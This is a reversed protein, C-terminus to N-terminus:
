LEPIRIRATVVAGADPQPGSLSIEGGIAVLAERAIFLGLGTGGHNRGSRGRYFKEFIRAPEFPDNEATANTVTLLAYRRGADAGAVLSVRVPKDPLGYRLANSMVNRAALDFLGRDSTITFPELEMQWAQAPGLQAAIDRLVSAPSFETGVVNWHGGEAEQAFLCRDIVARLASVSRETRASVLDDQHLAGRTAAFVKGALRDIERTLALQTARYDAAVALDAAIEAMAMDRELQGQQAVRHQLWVLTLILTSTVIAITDVSHLYLFEQRVLGLRLALDLMVVAIYLSYVVRVQWRRIPGTDRITWLYAVLLPAFTTNCAMAVMNAAQGHGALRWVPAAISALFLGLGLRQLLKPPDFQRMFCTHFAISTVALLARFFGQIAESFGADTLGFAIRGYGSFWFFLVLFSTQMALFTFDLLNGFPDLRVLVLAIALFQLALVASTWAASRLDERISLDQTVVSIQIAGPSATSIRVYYPTQGPLPDIAFGYWGFDDTADTSRALLEGAQSLRISNDPLPSFLTISDITLPRFRLRLPPLDGAGVSIRLWYAADTFGGGFSSIVPVFEARAMDEVGLRGTPDFHVAFSLGHEQARLAGAPCFLALVGLVMVVVAGRWLRKGTAACRQM